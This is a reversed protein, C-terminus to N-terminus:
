LRLDKAMRAAMSPGMTRARELAPQELFKAQTPPNHRAELNEHVYIAYDTAAGGFGVEVLIGTGSIEPESVAGSARLPGLDIPTLPLAEALLDTGEAYLAIAFAKLAIAPAAALRAELEAAGTWVIASM